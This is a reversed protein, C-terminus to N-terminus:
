PSGFVTAPAVGVACITQAAVNADASGPAMELRPPGLPSMPRLTVRTGQAAYPGGHDLITGTLTKAVFSFSAAVVNGSPRVAAQMRITTAGPAIIAPDDSVDQFVYTVAVTREGTPEWIGVATGAGTTMEEYTGDAHFVGYAIHTDPHAPDYDWRWAGVIPHRSTDGPQGTPSTARPFATQASTAQAPSLASGWTMVAVLSLLILLRLM